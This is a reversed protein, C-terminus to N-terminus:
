VSRREANEKKVAEWVERRHVLMEPPAAIGLRVKDGRIDMVTISIEQNGLILVIEEDRKRGLVLM